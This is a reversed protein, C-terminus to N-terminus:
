RDPAIGNRDCWRRWDADRFTPANLVWVRVGLFRSMANFLRQMFVIGAGIIVFDTVMLVFALAKVRANDQSTGWGLLLGWFPVLLGGIGILRQTPTVLKAAHEGIRPSWKAVIDNSRSM